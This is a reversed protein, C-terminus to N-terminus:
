KKQKKFEFYSFIILFISIFVMLFVFFLLGFDPFLLGILSVIGAAKFLKAGLKHTNNWVIENSLTWPTRIGIFWNQKAKELLVGIFYALVAFAPVLAQSFRFRYGLNWLISLLFVYFMFVIIVFVFLDYQKRFQAINHKLPDIRPILQFLLFMVVLLAPAFFLGIGKESFGDAEDNINWHIAIKEPLLPYVYVSVLISALIVVLMALVSKNM